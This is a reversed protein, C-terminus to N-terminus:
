LEEGCGPCFKGDPHTSLDTGCYPCFRIESADDGSTSRSGGRSTTEEDPSYVNTETEVDGGSYVETDSTRSGDASASENTSTAGPASASHGRRVNVARLGKDAQEAEFTVKTGEPIDPGRVTEMHFFVDDDLDPSTIFGFGGAENFLDVTGEYETPSSTDGHSANSSATPSATTATSQTTAASDAMTVDKARPGKEAQVIRFELQDGESIASGAYDESSVFVDEDTADTEIFGYGGTDNYFHVTGEHREM